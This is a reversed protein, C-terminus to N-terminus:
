LHRAALEAWLADPATFVARATGEVGWWAGRTLEEELQGPAWSAVGTFTLASGGPAGDERTGEYWSLGQLVGTGRAGDELVLTVRYDAHVPGGWRDVGAPLPGGGPPRPRNLVLGWTRTGDAELLLVVTKDFTHGVGGPRAVLLVGPAPARPVAEASELADIVRPLVGLMLLASALLLAVPPRQSFGKM